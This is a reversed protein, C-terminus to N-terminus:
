SRTLRGIVHHITQNPDLGCAEFFGFAPHDGTEALAREQDEASNWVSMMQLIGDGQTLYCDILGEPRQGVVIDSWAGYIYDATPDEIQASAISLILNCRRPQIDDSM